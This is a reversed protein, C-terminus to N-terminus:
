YYVEMIIIQPLSTGIVEDCKCAGVIRLAFEGGSSVSWCELPARASFIEIERKQLRKGWTM